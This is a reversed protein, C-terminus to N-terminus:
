ADSLVRANMEAALEAISSALQLDLGTLGGADHTTTLLDVRRYAVTWEPHHQMREAIAAIRNTFAVADVFAPLMYRCRLEQGERVWGPLGDLARDIEADSALAPRVM